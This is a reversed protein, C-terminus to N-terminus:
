PVLDNLFDRFTTSYGRPHGDLIGQAIHGEADLLTSELYAFRTLQTEAAASADEAQARTLTTRRAQREFMLVKEHAYAFWRFLIRPTQRDALVFEGRKWVDDTTDINAALTTPTGPGFYGPRIDTRDLWRIISGVLQRYGHWLTTHEADPWYAMLQSETRLSAVSWEMEIPPRESPLADTRKALSRSAEVSGDEGLRLFPVSERYLNTRARELIRATDATMRAVLAAELDHAKQRDEWQRTIAPLLWASLVIGLLTVIIPTPIRRWFRREAPTGEEAAAPKESATTAM